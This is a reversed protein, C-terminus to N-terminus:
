IKNLINKSLYIFKKQKLGGTGCGLLPIVLKPKDIQNEQIVQQMLSGIKELIQKIHTYSPFPTKSDDSYNM